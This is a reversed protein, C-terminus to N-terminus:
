LKYYVKLLFKPIALGVEDPEGSSTYYAKGYQLHLAIGFNDKEYAPGIMIGIDSGSLPQDWDSSTILGYGVYGGLQAHFATNPYRALWNLGFNYRSAKDNTSEFTANEYEFYSGLRVVELVQRAYFLQFVPSTKKTVWVNMPDGIWVAYDSAPSIGAGIGVINKHEQGQLFLSSTLMISLLCLIENKKNM